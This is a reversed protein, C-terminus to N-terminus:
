HAGRYFDGASYWETGIVEGREDFVYITGDGHMVSQVWRPPPYDREGRNVADIIERPMEWQQEYQWAAVLKGLHWDTRQLLRGNAAYVRHTGNQSPTWWSGVSRSNATTCGSTVIALLVIAPAIRRLNALLRTKM